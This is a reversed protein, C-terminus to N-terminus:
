VEYLSFIKKDNEANDFTVGELCFMVNAVKYVDPMFRKVVHMLSESMILMRVKGEAFKMIPEKTNFITAIAVPYDQGELLEAVNHM